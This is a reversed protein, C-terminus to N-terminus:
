TKALLILTTALIIGRHIQQVSTDFKNRISNINIHALVLRNFNDKKIFNLNTNEKPKKISFEDCTVTESVKSNELSHMFSRYIAETFTNSLIVTGTKNLHLKSGNLHKETIINEHSILEFNKEICLTKLHRNVQVVKKRYRDNRVTINSIAVSCSNSKLSSALDIISKAVKEPPINTTLDNTGVHLIIHDPNERITPRAYDQMCRVRAGPFDKIYVKCNDLSKPLSYSKVHKIISDGLILLKKKDLKSENNINNPVTKDAIERDKTDNKKTTSKNNHGSETINQESTASSNQSSSSSITNIADTTIEDKTSKQNSKQTNINEHNDNIMEKDIPIIEKHSNIPIDSNNINKQDFKYSTDQLSFYREDHKTSQSHLCHKLTDLM